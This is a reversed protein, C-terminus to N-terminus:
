NGAQGIRQDGEVLSVHARRVQRPASTAQSGRTRREAPLGNPAPTEKADDKGEVPEHHALV